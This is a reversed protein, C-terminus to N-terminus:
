YSVANQTSGAQKAKGTAVPPYDTPRCKFSRIPLRAPPRAAQRDTPDAGSPLLQGDFTTDSTPYDRPRRAPPRVALLAGASRPMEARICASFLSFIMRCRALRREIISLYRRM